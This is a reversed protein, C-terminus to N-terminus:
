KNTEDVMNNNKVLARQRKHCEYQKKYRERKKCAPCLRNKITQSTYEFPQGCAECIKQNKILKIVTPVYRPNPIEMVVHGETVVFNLKYSLTTDIISISYPAYKDFCEKLKSKHEERERKVSTVSFCFAKIKSDYKCWKKGYYKYICLLALLYEKIWGFVELSNIYDIEEQYIVISNNKVIKWHSAASWLKGFIFNIDEIDGNSKELLKSETELWINYIEDKTKGEDYLYKFLVAQEMFQHSETTYKKTQLIKECNEEWDFIYGNM